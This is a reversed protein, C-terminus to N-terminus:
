ATDVLNYDSLSSSAYPRIPDFGFELISTRRAEIKANHIGLIPWTCVRM